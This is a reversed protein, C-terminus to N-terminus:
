IRSMRHKPVYTISSRTKFKTLGKKTTGANEGQVRWFEAVEYVVYYPGGAEPRNICIVSKYPIAVKKKAANIIILDKGKRYTKVAMLTQPYNIPIAIQM